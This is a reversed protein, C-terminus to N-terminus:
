RRAGKPKLKDPTYNQRQAEEAAKREVDAKGPDIMARDSRGGGDGCGPLAGLSTVGLLLLAAVRARAGWIPGPDQM